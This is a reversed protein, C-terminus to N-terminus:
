KSLAFMVCSLKLGFNPWSTWEEYSIQIIKLKAQLLEIKETMELYIKLNRCGDHQLNELTIFCDSKWYEIMLLSMELLILPNSM